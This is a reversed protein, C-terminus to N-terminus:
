QTGECISFTVMFSSSHRHFLFVTSLYFEFAQLILDLCDYGVGIVHDHQNGNNQQSIQDNKGQYVHEGGRELERLPVQSGGAAGHGVYAFKGQVIPLPQQGTVKGPIQQELGQQVGQGDADANGYAGDGKAGYQGPQHDAAVKGELGEEGQRHDDGIHDGGPDLRLCPQTHELGGADAASGAKDRGEHHIRAYGRLLDFGNQRGDSVATQRDDNHQREVIVCICIQQHGCCQVGDVGLQLLHALDLSGALGQDQPLDGQRQHQGRHKGGHDQGEGLGDTGEAGDVIQTRGDAEPRQGALQIGVTLGLVRLRGEGHGDQHDADSRQRHEDVLPEDAGALGVGGDAALASPGGGDTQAAPLGNHGDDQEDEEDDADDHRHDDQDQLAAHQLLAGIRQGVERQVVPDALTIGVDHLADGADELIFGKHHRQHVGQLQGKDVAHEAGDETLHETVDAGLAAALEVALQHLLQHKDGVQDGGHREAANVQGHEGLRLREEAYRENRGQVAGEGQQRQGGHDLMQGKGGAGTGGVHQLDAALQLLGGGDLACAEELTKDLDHEGQGLAAKNGAEHQDENGNHLFQIQDDQDHRGLGGRQRIQRELVLVLVARLSRVAHGDHHEGDHEQYVCQCIDKSVCVQGLAHGASILYFLPSSVM